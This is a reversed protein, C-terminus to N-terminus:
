EKIRRGLVDYMQGEYMLYIQGNRLVKTSQVEDRQVEEISEPIDAGRYSFRIVGDSYSRSINTIEHGELETWHNIDGAPFVDSAEGNNSDNPKAELINVGMTEEDCNVKNNKWLSRNFRIQTILLGNGPLHKDWGEKKRAELLYFTTPNPDWGSLNHKNTESILLSEGEGENIPRLTVYEPETLVRPTLWGMYFREYASYAPPTNGDNSYSGQDMIDWQCLTHLGTRETNNEYLDPLGIVHGFEHCLTGIGTYKKSTFNLENSCAYRGIYTNDYRYNRSSVDWQHPWITSDSGGDAEGYGAYIVYLADVYGDNNNDYQRFDLGTADAKSCADRIMERPRSDKGQDDNEGYYYAKRTLNVPGVVDFVPNYQGYSQDQFYQRASGSSTIHMYIGWGSSSTTRVTYDRTFHTGNLLSDITDRPTTFKTDSFNVLLVLVRPVFYPEDGTAQQQQPARHAQVAQLGELRVKKQADTMPTLRKEDLWQGASDTMYHFSENGHLYVIQESGDEMTRIIPGRYAPVATATAALALIVIISLLKRM